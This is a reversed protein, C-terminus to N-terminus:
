NRRIYVTKLISENKPIFFSLGYLVIGQWEIESDVMVGRGHDSRQCLSVIWFLKPGCSFRRQGYFNGCVRRTAASRRDGKFSSQLNVKADLHNALLSYFKGLNRAVQTNHVLLELLIYSRIQVHSVGCPRWDRNCNGDIYWPVRISWITIKSQQQWLDCNVAADSSLDKIRGSWTMRQGSRKRRSNMELVQFHDRSTKTRRISGRKMETHFNALPHAKSNDQM